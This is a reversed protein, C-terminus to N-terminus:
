FIKKLFLFLAPSIYFIFFLLKKKMNIALHKKIYKYNKRYEAKTIKYYKERFLTSKYYREILLRCRFAYAAFCTEQILPSDAFLQCVEKWSVLETYHKDNFEKAHLASNERLFYSYMATTNISIKKSNKIAQAVFLSDEGVFLSPNFFIGQLIEKKFIKAWVTDTSVGYEGTFSFNQSEIIYKLENFCIASVQRHPVYITGCMSIEAGTELCLDSLLEFYELEVYDDSDIFSIYEGTANDLGLNRASSVGGNEKHFVRIRNDKLAYEDCIKGSNDTAGDDILLIELNKYTQNIISDLCRPLYEEVNYVPVIVSILPQKEM